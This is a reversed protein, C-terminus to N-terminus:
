PTEGTGGLRREIEDLTAAAAQTYRHDSGLVRKMGALAREAYDRAALLAGEIEMLISAFNNMAILTLPHSEGQIDRLREVAKEAMPRAAAAEGEETMTMALNMAINSAELHDGSVRLFGDLATRYLKQAEGLEGLEAL